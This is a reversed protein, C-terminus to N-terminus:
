MRIRRALVLIHFELLNAFSPLVLLFEVGIKTNSFTM